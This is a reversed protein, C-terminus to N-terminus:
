GIVQVGGRRPALVAARIDAGGAGTVKLAFWFHEANSSIVNVRKALLNRGKAL